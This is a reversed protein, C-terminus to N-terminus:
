SGCACDPPEFAATRSPTEAPRESLEHVGGWPDGAVPRVRARWREALAEIERARAPFRTRLARPLDFVDGTLLWRGDQPPLAPPNECWLDVVLVGAPAHYRMYRAWVTGGATLIVDHETCVRLLAAARARHIDGDPRRLPELGGLWNHAALAGALAALRAPRVSRGEAWAGVALWIPPLAMVWLEPNGPEMVMLLLAHLAFWAAAAAALTTWPNSAGHGRVDLGQVADSPAADMAPSPVAGGNQKKRACRGGRVLAGGVGLAALAAVALTGWAARRQVPPIARGLFLEEEIMRAPFRREIAEACAPEGFVFNAATLTSGFALAAKAASEPRLGGEARLPDPGGVSHAPVRGAALYGLGALLGTAAGHALAARLGRRRWLWLPVAGLVPLASFVHMWIAGAGLAVAAARRARSSATACRWAGLSLAIAPAYVEAEAAYRWFGYSVALAAAAWRARARGVGGAECLLAAVLVVAAGAALASVGAMVAHARAGPVWWRVAHWLGRMVPLHLLHHPHILERAPAREVKWAFDWADEAETRNLPATLGYAAAIAVAAAVAIWRSTGCREDAASV